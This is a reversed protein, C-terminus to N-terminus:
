ICNIELLGNKELEKVKAEVDSEQVETITQKATDQIISKVFFTVWNSNKNLLQLFQNKEKAKIDSVDNRFREEDLDRADDTLYQTDRGKQYLDSQVELIRRTKPQQNQLLKVLEEETYKVGKYEYCAM